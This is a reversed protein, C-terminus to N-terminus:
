ESEYLYTYIYYTNAPVTQTAKNNQKYDKYKMQISQAAIIELTCSGGVFVIQIGFM